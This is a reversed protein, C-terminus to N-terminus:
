GILAQVLGSEVRAPSRRLPIVIGSRRLQTPSVHERWRLVVFAVPSFHVPKESVRRRLERAVAEPFMPTAVDIVPVGEAAPPIQPLASEVLSAIRVARRQDSPGEWVGSAVIGEPHDAGATIEIIFWDGALHTGLPSGADYLTRLQDGLLTFERKGEDGMIRGRGSPSDLLERLVRTACVKASQGPKRLYDAYHHMGQRIDDAYNEPDSPRLTKVEVIYRGAQTYVAFDPRRGDPGLPERDVRFGFRNLSAWVEVEVQAPAFSEFSRLDGLLKRDSWPRASELDVGLRIVPDIWPLWRNFFPKVVEYDKDDKQM